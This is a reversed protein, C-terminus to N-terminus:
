THIKWHELGTCCEFMPVKGIGVPSNSKIGIRGHSSHRIIPHVASRGGGKEYKETNDFTLMWEEGM